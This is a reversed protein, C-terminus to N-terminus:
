VISIIGCIMPRTKAIHYRETLHPEGAIQHQQRVRFQVFIPTSVFLNQCNKFEFHVIRRVKPAVFYNALLM